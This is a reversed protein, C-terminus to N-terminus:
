IAYGKHAGHLVDGIINGKGNQKGVQKPSAAPPKGGHASPPLNPSAKANHPLPRGTVFLALLAIIWLLRALSPM